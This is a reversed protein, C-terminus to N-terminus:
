GGNQANRRYVDGRSLDGLLFDVFAHGLRKTSFVMRPCGEGRSVIFRWWALQRDLAM